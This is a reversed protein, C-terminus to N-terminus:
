DHVSSFRKCVSWPGHWALKCLHLRTDDSSQSQPWHWDIPWMTLLHGSVCSLPPRSCSASSSATLWLPLLVTEESVSVTNLWLVTVCHYSTWPLIESNFASGPTTSTRSTNMNAATLVPSRCVATRYAPPVLDAPLVTPLTQGLKTMEVLHMAVCFEDVSLSGNNDVDALSRVVCVRLWNTCITWKLTECLKAHM